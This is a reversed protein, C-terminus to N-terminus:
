KEKIYEEAPRVYEVFAIIWFIINFVFCLCIFVVKGIWNMHRAKYILSESTNEKKEQNDSVFERIKGNNPTYTINCINASKVQCLLCPGSDKTTIKKEKSIIHAIYTHFAMSVGLINLSFLLWWDIM